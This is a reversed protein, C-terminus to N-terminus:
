EGSSSTPNSRRDQGTRKTVHEHIRRNYMRREHRFDEFDSRNNWRCVWINYAAVILGLVVVITLFAFFLAQFSNTAHELAHQATYM